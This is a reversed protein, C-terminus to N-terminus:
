GSGDPPNRRFTVDSFCIYSGVLMLVAGAIVLQISPTTSTGFRTTDVVIVALSFGYRSYAHLAKLTLVIGVVTLIAGLLRFIPDPKGKWV